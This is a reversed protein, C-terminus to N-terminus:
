AALWRSLMPDAELRARRDFREGWPKSEHDYKFRRRKNIKRGFENCLELRRPCGISVVFNALQTDTTTRQVKKM